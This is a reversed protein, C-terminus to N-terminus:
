GRRRAKRAARKQAAVGTRRRHIPEAQAVVDARPVFNVLVTNKISDLVNSVLSM